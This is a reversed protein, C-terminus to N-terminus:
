QGGPHATMNPEAYNIDPAAGLRAAIARMIAPRQAPQASGDHVLVLENSFTVRDLRLGAFEPRNAKWADFKTKASAPDRWFADIIDKVRGDDKFKVVIEVSTQVAGTAGPQNQVQPLGVLPPDGDAPGSLLPEAQATEPAATAAAPALLAAEEVQRAPRDPATVLLSVGVITTIIGIAAATPGAAKLRSDANEARPAETV